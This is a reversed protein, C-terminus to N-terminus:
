QSGAPSFHKAASEADSEVTSLKQRAAALGNEIDQIPAATAHHYADVAAAYETKARDAADACNQMHQNAAQLWQVSNTPQAAAATTQKHESAGHRHSEAAHLKIHLEAVQSKLQRVQADLTWSQWWFYGCGIAFALCLVGLLFRRIMFTVNLGDLALL